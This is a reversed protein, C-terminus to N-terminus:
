RSTHGTGQDEVRWRGNRKTYVVLDAIRKTYVIPGILDEV